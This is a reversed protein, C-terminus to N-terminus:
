VAAVARGGQHREIHTALLIADRLKVNRGICIIAPATMRSAEIDSVAKGLTTILTRQAPMTANSIVAVSDNPSRGGALLKASLEAINRMAMFLVLLESGRAIANWDVGRAAEGTQDHGTLFTVSHNSDRHTLPIGAYTLAGIGSTIGPTIRIPVGAGALVLAEEGGRGFVFPDGGKLRVVRQRAKSLEILRLSIDRQKPSPRGGRKGASEICTQPRCWDLIRADILSDHVVHDARQLASVGHLTMLGPDGPGAGVLWIMGPPFPLQAALQQGDAENHQNLEM